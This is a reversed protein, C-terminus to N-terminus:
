PRPDRREANAVDAAASVPDRGSGAASGGSSAGSRSRATPAKRRTDLGLAEMDRLRRDAKRKEMSDMARRKTLGSADAIGWWVAAAAFPSLVLWWSWAAVPGYEALKLGGLVLGLLLFAM